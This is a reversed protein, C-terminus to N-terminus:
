WQHLCQLSSNCNPKGGAMPFNFGQWQSPASASQSTVATGAVEGDGDRRLGPASPSWSGSSLVQHPQERVGRQWGLLNWPNPIHSSNAKRVKGSLFLSIKMGWWQLVSPISGQRLSATDSVAGSRDLLRHRNINQVPFYFMDVQLTLAFYKLYYM